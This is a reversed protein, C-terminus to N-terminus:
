AAAFFFDILVVGWHLNKPESLDITQLGSPHLDWNWSGGARVFGWQVPLVVM